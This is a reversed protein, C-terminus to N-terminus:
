CLTCEMKWAFRYSWHLNALWNKIISFDLFRLNWYQLCGVNNWIYLIFNKNSPLISTTIIEFPKCQTCCHIVTVIIVYFIFSIIEKFNWSCCLFSCTKFYNLKIFLFIWYCLISFPHFHLSCNKVYLRQQKLLVIDQLQCWEYYECFDWRENSFLYMRSYTHLYVIDYKLFFLHM